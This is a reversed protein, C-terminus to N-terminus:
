ELEEGLAELIIRRSWASVSEGSKQAFNTIARKQKKTLRVGIMVKFGDEKM